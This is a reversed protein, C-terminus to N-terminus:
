LRKLLFVDSEREIKKQLKMGRLSDGRPELRCDAQSFAVERDNAVADKNADKCQASAVFRTQRWSCEPPSKGRFLRKAVKFSLLNRKCKHARYSM